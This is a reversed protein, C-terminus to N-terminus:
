NIIYSWKYIILYIIISYIVSVCIFAGIQLDDPVYINKNHKPDICPCNTKFGMYQQMIALRDLRDKEEQQKRALAVSPEVPTFQVGVSFDERLNYEVDFTNVEDM